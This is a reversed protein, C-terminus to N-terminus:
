MECDTMQNNINMVILSKLWIMMVTIQVSLHKIGKIIIIIGIKRFLSDCYVKIVTICYLFFM